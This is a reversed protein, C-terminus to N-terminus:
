PTQLKIVGPYGSRQRILTFTKPNPGKDESENESHGDRVQVTSVEQGLESVDNMVVALGVSCM